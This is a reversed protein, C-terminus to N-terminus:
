RYFRAMPYHDAIRRKADERDTARLMADIKGDADAYWYLPVGTGFYTGNCDYGGSNLHVRRLTLRDSFEPSAERITPRGMAAGRRSDGCWGRPDNTKYSPQGNTLSM